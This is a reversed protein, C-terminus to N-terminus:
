KIRFTEDIITVAELSKRDSRAKEIKKKEAEDIWFLGGYSSDFYELGDTMKTGPPSPFKLWAWYALRFYPVKFLPIHTADDHVYQQIKHAAEIRKKEDVSTRFVDIWKDLEESATNSFNNTQPKNANESHFQGWYQPRFGTSWSVFAIDHQKELYSKWLASQDLQQLQLDIGAKRAEERLVVLRPGINAQGYTITARLVQGDKVLYGQANRETWGAATLHKAAKELDFPRAKINPNTYAGYGRSIGQLRDYDGRLVQNLVRDINMAYHFALRVNIDQFLPNQKNLVLVYDSRRTDNYAQLRHIYGAEFMRDQTKEHWYDPFPIWMYDIDNTKLNEFAVNPDRIVRFVVSDVNFRNKFWPRDKAWWDKKRTFTISRGRRMDTIQYPGTNPAVEWNYKQVFKEDLQYFHRPLPGLNTHYILDPSAQPLTVAVVEKGDKEKFARIEAIETSYYEKHWPSMIHPSTMFEKLFVFDEATVPKGDSWQAAPDLRYYVTKLDESKAWHTALAPLWEDTNPHLAVLSLQNQDLYARFGGNSDPGVQRLTLPYSQVYVNFRGGKQADPSAILPFEANTEWKLNKPLESAAKEEPKEADAFAQFHPLFCAILLATKWYVTKDELFSLKVISPM